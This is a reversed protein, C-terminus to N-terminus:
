IDGEIAACLAAGAELPIAHGANELLYVASDRGSKCLVEASAPPVFADRTGHLFRVPVPADLLDAAWDETAWADWAAAAALGSAGFAAQEAWRMRAPDPPQAWMERCFWAAAEASGWSRWADCAQAAERSVEGASIMVARRVRFGSFLRLYRLAVAAGLGHGVLVVNRLSEWKVLEYVDLAMRALFVGVEAGASGGFGRLDPAIVRRKQRLLRSVAEEFVRHDMWWGHLLVVSEEADRPGYAHVAIRQGDSTLLFYM